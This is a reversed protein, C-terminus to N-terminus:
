PAGLMAEERQDLAEDFAEVADTLNAVHEKATEYEKKSAIAKL